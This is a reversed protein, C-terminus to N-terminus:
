SASTIWGGGLVRDGDYFVCAQGPAIAEFPQDLLVRAADEGGGILVANVPAHMSRLKVRVTMSEPPREGPGIWNVDRVSVESGMLAERPGIVVRRTEPELRIVFRPEPTGLGLGRRQGVTYRIIGDHRGLVAGDRDVIDGPAAADPRMGAVVDAYGGDPVFCIDQSDPKDAVPLALRRAEARVKEKDWGGLPFRIAGLQERTTAFLFYSQDRRSDAGALLEPGDPGRRWRAYHGTALADAGLAKARALLDRFKVTQNCRACPLPTEGRVYSDAFDDIVDRRFIDEMDLVYHPIGIADAVRRADIADSAGCCANTRAPARGSGYLRLTAGIVEYGAEALLAATVSSDVGGSMAVVVRGGDPNDLDLDIMVPIDGSRSQFELFQSFRHVPLRGLGDADEIGVDAPRPGNRLM